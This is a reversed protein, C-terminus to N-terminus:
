GYLKTLPMCLLIVICNVPFVELCKEEAAKCAPCDGTVMTHGRDGPDQVKVRETHYREDCLNSSSGQAPKPTECQHIYKTTITHPQVARGYQLLTCSRHRRTNIEYECM